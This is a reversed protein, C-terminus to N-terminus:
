VTTQVGTLKNWTPNWLNRVGWLGWHGHSFWCTLSSGRPEWTDVTFSGRSETEARSVKGKLGRFAPELITRGCTAARCFTGGWWFGGLWYTFPMFWHSLHSSIKILSVAASAFETGHLPLAWAHPPGARLGVRHLWNRLVQDSQWRRTNTGLYPPAEHGPHVRVCGM